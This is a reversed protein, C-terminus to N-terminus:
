YRYLRARHPQSDTHCGCQGSDTLSYSWCGVTMNILTNTVHHCYLQLLPFLIATLASLQRLMGLCRQKEAEWWLLLYACITPKSHLWLRAWVWVCVSVYMYVCMYIFDWYPKRGKLKLTHQRCHGHLLYHSRGCRDSPPCHGTRGKSTRQRQCSHTLQVM